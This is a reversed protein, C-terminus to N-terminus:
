PSQNSWGVGVPSQAVEEGVSSGPFKQFGVREVTEEWDVFVKGNEKSFVRLVDIYWSDEAARYGYKNSRFKTTVDSLDTLHM